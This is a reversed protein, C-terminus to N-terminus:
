SIRRIKTHKAAYITFSHNDIAGDVCFAPYVITKYSLQNGTPKLLLSQQGNDIIPISTNNLSICTGGGKHLANILKKYNHWGKNNLKGTWRPLYLKKVTMKDCLPTLAELTANGLQLIILHDITLTGSHKIIEPILTYTVWTSGSATSGIYGPDVVTIEKASKLITVSGKHCTIEMSTCAYRDKIKLSICSVILVISLICATYNKLHTYRLQMIIFASAPIAMLIILHPRSFGVLTGKYNGSMIWTWWTAIHDLIRIFFGNPICLIECFFILSSIFLFLALPVGFILNGLPSLMSLPLGWAILIPMSILTLFVQLHIFTIIRPIIARWIASQPLTKLYIYADNM